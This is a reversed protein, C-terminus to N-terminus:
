TTRGDTASSGPQCCSNEQTGQKEGALPDGPFLHHRLADEPDEEEAQKDEALLDMTVVSM